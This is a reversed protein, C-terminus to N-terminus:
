LVAALAVAKVGDRDRACIRTHGVTHRRVRNDLRAVEHRHVEAANFVAVARVHRSRDRHAICAILHPLNVVGNKASLKGAYFLRGRADRARLYVLGSAVNNGRRAVAFVEAVAEAVREPEIDM